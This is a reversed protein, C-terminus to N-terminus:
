SGLVDIGGGCFAAGQVGGDDRVSIAPFGCFLAVSGVDGDDGVAVAQRGLFAAGRVGGNYRVPIAPFGAGLLLLLLLLLTARLVRRNHRIPIPQFLSYLFFPIFFPIPPLYM